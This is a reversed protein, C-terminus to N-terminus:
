KGRVVKAIYSMVLVILPVLSATLVIIEFIRIGINPEFIVYYTLPQGTYEVWHYWYLLLLIVIVCSLGSILGFLIFTNMLRKNM